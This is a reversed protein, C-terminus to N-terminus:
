LRGNHICRSRSKAFLPVYGFSRFEEPIAAFDNGAWKDDNFSVSFSDKINCDQLVKIFLSFLLKIWKLYINNMDYMLQRSFPKVAHSVKQVFFRLCVLWGLIWFIWIDM